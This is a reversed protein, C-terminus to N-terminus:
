KEHATGHLTFEANVLKVTISTLFTYNKCQLLTQIDNYIVVLADKNSNKPINKSSLKTLKESITPTSSNTTARIEDLTKTTEKKGTTRVKTGKDKTFYEIADITKVGYGLLRAQEKLAWLTRNPLLKLVDSIKVTDKVNDKIIKKETDTYRKAM